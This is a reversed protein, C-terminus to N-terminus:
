VGANGTIQSFLNQAQTKRILAFAYSTVTFGSGLLNNVYYHIVAKEDAPVFLFDGLTSRFDNFATGSTPINDFTEGDQTLYRYTSGDYLSAYALTISMQNTYWRNNYLYLGQIIFPAESWYRLEVYGTESAGYIVEVDDMMVYIPYIPIGSAM